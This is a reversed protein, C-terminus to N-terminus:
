ILILIDFSTSFFCTWILDILLVLNLLALTPILYICFFITTTKAISNNATISIALYTVTLKLYTYCFNSCMSLVKFYFLLILNFMHYVICIFHLWNLHDNNHNPKENQRGSLITYPLKNQNKIFHQKLWDIYISVHVVNQKCVIFYCTNLM